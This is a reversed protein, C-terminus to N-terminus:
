HPSIELWGNLVAINLGQFLFSGYNDGDNQNTTGLNTNQCYYTPTLYKDGCNIEVTPLGIMVGGMSVATSDLSGTSNATIAQSTIPLVGTVDITLAKATFDGVGGAVNSYNELGEYGTYVTGGVNFRYLEDTSDGYGTAGEGFRLPIASASGSQLDTTTGDNSGYYIANINLVDIQFNDIAIAGGIGSAIHPGIYMDSTFGDNDIYAIRDINIFMQIDDFVINVGSQGTVSDLTSDDLMQMSLATTPIILILLLLVSQKM